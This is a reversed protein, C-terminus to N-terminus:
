QIPNLKMFIKEFKEDRAKESDFREIFENTFEWDCDDEGVKQMSYDMYYHICFEYSGDSNRERVDSSIKTIRDLNILQASYYKTKPISVFM